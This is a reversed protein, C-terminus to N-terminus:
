CKEPTFQIAVVNRSEFNQAWSVTPAVRRSMVYKVSIEDQRSM